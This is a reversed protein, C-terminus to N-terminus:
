HHFHRTDSFFMVMGYENTASIVEEDRKSGGPQVIFKVGLKSALEINDRFPFFADSSLSVNKLKTIWDKKEEKSITEAFSGFLHQLQSYENASIDGEILLNRANTRETKGVQKKFHLNMIKPHQRLFWTKAKHGALKICGLRSQQGAGIGITQGDLAFVIANSQTYKIAISAILLDRSSEKTFNMNKTVIKKLFYEKKIKKTNRKQSFVVGNVERFEIKPAKYKPDAKLIIYNGNKKTRLLRLAKEDYDPAIVGDSVNKKILSATSLDVKRSLGIFDGYSSM